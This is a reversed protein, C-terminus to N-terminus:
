AFYGLCGFGQLGAVELIIFLAVEVAVSKIQISNYLNNKLM